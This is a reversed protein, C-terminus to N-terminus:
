FKQCLLFDCTREFGFFLCQSIPVWHHNQNSLNQNQFPARYSSLVVDDVNEMLYLVCHQGIIWCIRGTKTFFRRWRNFNKAGIDERISATWWTCSFPYLSTKNPFMHVFNFDILFIFNTASITIVNTCELLWLFCRIFLCLIAFDLETGNLAWAIILNIIIFSIGNLTTSGLM